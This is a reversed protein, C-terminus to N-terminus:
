AGQEMAGCPATLSARLRVECREGHTLAVVKALARAAPLWQDSAVAARAMNEQVQWSGEMLRAAESLAIFAERPRNRELLLAALNNFAEGHDPALQGCRTFAQPPPPCSPRSAPM